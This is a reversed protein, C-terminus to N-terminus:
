KEYGDRGLSTNTITKSPRTAACIEKNDKLHRKIWELDKANAVWLVMKCETNSSLFSGDFYGISIGDPTSAVGIGNIETVRLNDGEPFEVSVLGAKRVVRVQGDAEQVYVSTCGAALIVIAAVCSGKWLDNCRTFFRISRWATLGTSSDM